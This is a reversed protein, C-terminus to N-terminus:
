KKRVLRKFVLQSIARLTEVVGEGTKANAAFAPKGDANLLQGIEALPLSTAFDRMNFQVVAPIRDPEVGDDRLHRRLNELSEMNEDLRERRSDAVFVLGDVGKLLLRRNSDFFLDGPLAYLHLRTDFGRIRGLFLPLFDFYSTREDDGALCLLEGRKDPPTRRSVYQLNATKGARAPGVYVVKCNIERKEYNIFTM